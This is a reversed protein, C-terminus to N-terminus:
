FWGFETYGNKKKKMFCTNPVNGKLENWKNIFDQSPEKIYFFLSEWGDNIRCYGYTKEEQPNEQEYKDCHRIDPPFSHISKLGLQNFVKYAEQVAKFSLAM